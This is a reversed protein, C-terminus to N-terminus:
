LLINKRKKKIFIGKSWGNVMNKKKKSFFDLEKPNIELILFSGDRERELEKHCSESEAVIHNCQNAFNKAVVVM